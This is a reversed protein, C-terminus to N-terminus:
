DHHSEERIHARRRQRYHATKERNGCREMSCWRRRGPRSQDIFLLSCVPNACNRVRALDPGAVLEIAARAVQALAARCPDPGAWTLQGNAELQPARAPRRAWANLIDRDPAAPREGARRQTLLRYIAERLEHAEELLERDCHADDALGSLSLWRNLDGPRQLREDETGFRGALTAAFELALHGLGLRFEHRDTALAFVKSM